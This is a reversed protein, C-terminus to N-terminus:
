RRRIEERAAALPMGTTAEIRLSRQQRDADLARFAAAQRDRVRLERETRCAGQELLEALDKEIEASQSEGRALEAAKAELQDGLRRKQERALTLEDLAANLLAAAEEPGQAAIGASRAAREM